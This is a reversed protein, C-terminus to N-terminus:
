NTFIKQVNYLQFTYIFVLICSYSGFDLLLKKIHNSFYQESCMSTFMKISEPQCAGSLHGPRGELPDRNGVFTLAHSLGASPRLQEKLLQQLGLDQSPKQPM